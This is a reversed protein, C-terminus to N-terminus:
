AIKLIRYLGMEM